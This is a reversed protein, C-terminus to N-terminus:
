PAGRPSHPTKAPDGVLTSQFHLETRRLYAGFTRDAISMDFVVSDADLM